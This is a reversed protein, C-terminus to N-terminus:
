DIFSEKIKELPYKCAEQLQALDAATPALYTNSQAHMISKPMTVHDMGLAHGLEHAITHILENKNVILYIDITKTRADYTGEEPKTELVETLKGATNELQSVQANYEDASKDLKEAMANLSDAKTRLENQEKTLKEYEEPPAGGQNNWYEIRNNLEALRKKFEAVEREYKEITPKLSNESTDLTNEIQTIKSHLSQREDYVMNITLEAEPDYVFLEKKYANNWIYAAQDIHAALEKETMKFQPDISGIKYGVPESCVPRIIAKANEIVAPNIQSLVTIAIFIVVFLKLIIKM